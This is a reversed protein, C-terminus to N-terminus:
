GRHTIFLVLNNTKKNLLVRTSFEVGFNWKGNIIRKYGIGFPLVQEPGFKNQNGGVVFDRAKYQRKLFQM